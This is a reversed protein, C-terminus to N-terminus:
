LKNLESETILSVYRDKYQQSIQINKDQLFIGIKIHGEESASM